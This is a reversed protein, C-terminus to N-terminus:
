ASKKEAGSLYAHKWVKFQKDQEEVSELFQRKLGPTNEFVEFPIDQGTNSDKLGQIDQLNLELIDLEAEMLKLMVDPPTKSLIIQIKEDETLGEVDEDSIGPVGNLLNKGLIYAMRKKQTMRAFYLKVGEGDDYVCPKTDDMSFKIM